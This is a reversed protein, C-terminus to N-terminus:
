LSLVIGNSVMKLIRFLVAYIIGPGSIHFAPFHVPYKEFGAFLPNRGIRRRARLM